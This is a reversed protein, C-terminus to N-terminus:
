RSLRLVEATDTASAHGPRTGGGMAYLARGIAAVAIGHRPTRMSPARSWKRGAIDYSEVKGYVGTSREGGVAFLRGAIITAGLGGRPTPMDTLQQWRDDAPDYRELAATNKDPSLNRGGVAYLYRGDSAAAMHERPTPINATLRWQKGDFVETERVLRGNAQGGVVVIRDGVVAAAGAARPRNLSPLKVWKRGRLALVKDSTIASPEGGKPIWGGIVVLEDKYTVAMEHHLPSPLDPAAKWGNIVPDYGEVRRSGKSETELGGVVWISGDAVSGTMNQRATPMSPLARWASARLPPASPTAVSSQKNPEDSGGTLAVIAIVLAAAALVALAGLGLVLRRRTGQKEGSPPLPSAPPPSAPVPAVPVPAVPAPAVPAPARGAGAGGDAGRRGGAALAARGLEGASEFRDEPDKAMARQVVGEYEAPVDASLERLSPTDTYVHAWLTALDNERKFPARGTLAEFLVCGLSYVDTQPSVPKGEIQEPATYDVTGVWQGTRTLGSISSAHKTLGFDTLYVHEQGTILINAPKVDRHILDREHAADLARAVQNVLLAARSPDLGSDGVITRLNTGEVWRMAIFLAGDAEGAEYVPIVNPHDISAAVMWERRFRERFSPDRALEPTVLKLAVPRTLRLQTARYVVGMGGRVAVAEIRYGAFETGVALEATTKQDV